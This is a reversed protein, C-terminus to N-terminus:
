SKAAYWAAGLLGVETNTIVHVPIDANFQAFKPFKMEKATFFRMFTDDGMKDLIKPAIGGGIYVGGVTKDHLALNGAVSGYISVFLDLAKECLADEHALAAESIVQAADKQNMRERLAASEKGYKGNGKLFEYINVLGDGSLIQETGVDGQIKEQLHALLQGQLNDKDYSPAFNAHGAESSSPYYEGDKWFLKVIGLGTGAAIIARNGEQPKGQNIVVLDEKGLQSIGYGIAEMDNLLFVSMGKILQSVNTEKIVPWNLNTMQCYRKGDPSKEVPGAIGFCAVGIQKEDENLQAQNVHDLFENLLNELSDYQQSEYKKKIISIVKDNEQKFIGLNTKTGGIDGALIMQYNRGKM